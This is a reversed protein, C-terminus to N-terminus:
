AVNFIEAITKEKLADMLLTQIRCFELHPACQRGQVNHPCEYGKELCENLFLEKEISMVIDYLTFTNLDKILEYGGTTGRSGRVLGGKELKKLIKYAYQLPIEETDCIEKVSKKSYDALARVARVAYDCERTILM